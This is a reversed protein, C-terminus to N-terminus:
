PRRKEFPTRVAVYATFLAWKVTFRCMLASLCFVMAQRYRGARVLDEALFKRSNGELVRLVAVLGPNRASVALKTCITTYYVLKRTESVRTSANASKAREPTYHICVVYDRYYIGTACDMANITFHLDESYRLDADFGGTRDILAQTRGPFVPNKSLHIRNSGNLYLQRKICDAYFRMLRKREAEPWRDVYYFDLDGMYPM